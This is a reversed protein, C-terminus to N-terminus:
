SKEVRARGFGGDELVTKRNHCKICLTQWNSVDWFLEKNGRHPVVHDVVKGPKKCVNCLPHKALWVSRAKRWRANYGMAAASPRKGHERNRSQPTHITPGSFAPPRKPLGVIRIVGKPV